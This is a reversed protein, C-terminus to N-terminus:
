ATELVVIRQVAHHAAGLHALTTDFSVQALLSMGSPRCLAAAITPMLLIMRRVAVESTRTPWPSSLNHCIIGQDITIDGRKISAM